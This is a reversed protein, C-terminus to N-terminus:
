LEVELPEPENIPEFMAMMLSSVASDDLKPIIANATAKCPHNNYAGHYKGECVKEHLYVKFREIADVQRDTLPTGEVVAGSDNLFKM